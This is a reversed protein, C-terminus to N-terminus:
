LGNGMCSTGAKCCENSGLKGGAKWLSKTLDWRDDNLLHTQKPVTATVCSSSKNTALSLIILMLTLPNSGATLYVRRQLCIIQIFAMRILRGGQEGRFCSQSLCQVQDLNQNVAGWSVRVESRRPSPHEQIPKRDMIQEATQNKSLQQKYLWVFNSSLDAMCTTNIVRSGKWM